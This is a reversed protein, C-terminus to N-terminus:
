KRIQEQYSSIQASISQAIGTTGTEAVATAYEQAMISKWTKEANGGGFSGTAVKQFMEDFAQTLFVAEFNKAVDDAASNKQTHTMPPAPKSTIDM